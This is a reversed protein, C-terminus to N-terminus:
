TNTVAVQKETPGKELVMVILGLIFVFSFVFLSRGYSGFFSVLSGISFVAITTVIRGINFCFGTARGRIGSPFLQPIYFSLLGQSIGFFLSLVATEVYVMASFEQTFLFLPLTLGSCALFCLIMSKRVGLTKAVWGSLFGGTLGGMGLIMMTKAAEGGETSSGGLSEVWSPYWSFVSWLGILMSGFVLTGHILKTQYEGLAYWSNGLIHHRARKWQGSERLFFFLLLGLVAPVLGWQFGTRWDPAMIRIMGSSFIGIPFGISVIGIIINRSKQPWVESLFTVTIVMTGGVGFGTLFRFLVVAEWHQAFVILFTCSGMFLLSLAMGRVRGIKDSLFGWLMGGITWGALFIANVFAEIDTGEQATGTSRGVLSDMIESLYIPLLTALQGALINGLLCITFLRWLYGKGLYHEKQEM